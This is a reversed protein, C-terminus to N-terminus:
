ANEELLKKPKQHNMEKLIVGYVHKSETIPLDLVVM